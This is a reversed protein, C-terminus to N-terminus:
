RGRSKVYSRTIWRLRYHIAKISDAPLPYEPLWFRFFRGALRNRRLHLWNPFRSWRTVAGYLSAAVL